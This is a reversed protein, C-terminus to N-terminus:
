DGLNSRELFSARRHRAPLDIHGDTPLGSGSGSIHHQQIASLGIDGDLEVPRCVSIDSTFDYIGCERWGRRTRGLDCISCSLLQHVDPGHLRLDAPQQRDDGDGRPVQQGSHDAHRVMPVFASFWIWASGCASLLCGCSQWLVSLLEAGGDSNARAFIGNM